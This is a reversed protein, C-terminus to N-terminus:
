RETNFTIETQGLKKDLYRNVFIVIVKQVVFATSAILVVGLLWCALGISNALISPCRNWEPDPGCVPSSDLVFWRMLILSAIAFPPTVWLTLSLSRVRQFIWAMVALVTSFTLVVGTMWILGFIEL